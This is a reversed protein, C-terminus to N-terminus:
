LLQNIMPVFIMLYSFFAVGATFTLLMNSMARIRLGQDWSISEDYSTLLYVANRYFGMTLLASSLLAVLVWQMLNLHLLIGAAIILVTFLSQLLFIGDDTAIRRVGIDYRACKKVM